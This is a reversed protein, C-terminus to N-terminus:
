LITLFSSFLSMINYSRNSLNILHRTINRLKYYMGSIIAANSEVLTWVGVFAFNWTVDPSTLDVEIVNVLRFISAICVSHIALLSMLKTWGVLLRCRVFWRPPVNWLACDESFQRLAAVLYVTYAPEVFRCGHPHQPDFPWSPIAAAKSRM